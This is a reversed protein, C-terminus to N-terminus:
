RVAKERDIWEYYGTPSMIDTARVRGPGFDDIRWRRETTEVMWSAVAKRKGDMAAMVFSPCGKGMGGTVNLARAACRDIRFTANAASVPRRPDPASLDPLDAANLGPAHRCLACVPGCRFREAEEHLGSLFDDM